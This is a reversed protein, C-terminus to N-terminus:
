LIREQQNQQLYWEVTKRLGEGLPTRSEWFEKARTCDLRRRPQGNPKGSDYVV